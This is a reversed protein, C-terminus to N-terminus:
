KKTKKAEMVKKFYTWSTENPRTDDVPPATTYIPYNAKIEAKLMEPLDDWTKLKKGLGSFILQGARDGMEMWPLWKSVRNWAVIGESSNKTPDLLDAESCAFNFIEIAQYTGGVYDQYDGALPNSYFLPVETTMFFMGEKFQGPMKFPTPGNANAFMPRSNVPDNAIHLVEVEKSTWPNKWMKLVQKTQPDMYLLLERSVMRYGYGKEPDNVTQAARVNMAIYTFLLRDKEGPVRSFVNGEWWYTVSEGDQLSAQLKRMIKVADEPKNADLRAPPPTTKGKKQAEAAGISGLSLLLCLLLKKM